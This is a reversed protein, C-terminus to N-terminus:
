ANPHTTGFAAHAQSRAAIAIVRPAISRDPFGSITALFDMSAIVAADAGNPTSGGFWGTEPTQAEIAELGQGVQSRLRDVWDSWVLHAPRRETEYVYAVGKEAIATALAIQQQCAIRDSGGPPILRQAPAATTELYDIIAATEILDGDPTTLVPVRSLPNRARFSEFDAGFLDVPRREFKRGQLGLWIAVRRVFPSRKGGYLVLMM